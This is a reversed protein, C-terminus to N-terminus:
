MGLHITRAYKGDSSPVMCLMKWGHEAIRRPFWVCNVAFFRSSLVLLAGFPTFTNEALKSAVHSVGYMKAIVLHLEVVFM